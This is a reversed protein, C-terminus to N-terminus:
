ECRKNHGNNDVLFSYMKPNLVALEKNTVGGTKDKMKRIDLKNSNNYYKSKIILLIFRKKMAAIIKM